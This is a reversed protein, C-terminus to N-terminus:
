NLIIYHNIYNEFIDGRKQFDKEQISSAKISIMELVQEEKLTEIHVKAKKITGIKSIIEMLLNELMEKKWKLKKKM